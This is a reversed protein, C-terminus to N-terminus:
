DSPQVYLLYTHTQFWRQMEGDWRPKRQVRTRRIPQRVKADVDPYTGALLEHARRTVRQFFTKKGVQDTSALAMTQLYVPELGDFQQVTGGAQDRLRTVLAKAGMEAPVAGKHFAEAASMDTGGTLDDQLDADGSLRGHAWTLIAETDVERFPEYVTDPM